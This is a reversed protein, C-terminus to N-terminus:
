RVQTITNYFYTAGASEDWYEVWEAGIVNEKGADQKVDVGDKGVISASATDARFDAPRQMEPGEIDAPRPDNTPMESTAKSMRGEVGTTVISSTPLTAKAISLAVEPADVFDKGGDTNPAQARKQAAELEKERRELEAQKKSLKLLADEVQRTRRTHIFAMATLVAHVIVPLISKGDKRSNRHSLTM